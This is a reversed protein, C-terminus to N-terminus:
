LNQHPKSRALRSKWNWDGNLAVNGTLGDLARVDLSCCVGSVTLNNGINGLQTRCSNINNQSLVTNGLYFTGRAGHSIVQISDLDQYDSLVAQMQEVGDQGSDLLFAKSDTPLAAIPRQYDAVRSDVFFINHTTM